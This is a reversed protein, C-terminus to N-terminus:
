RGITAVVALPAHLGSRAEAVRIGRTAEASGPQSVQGSQSVLEPQQLAHHWWRDGAHYASGALLLAAVAYLTRSM